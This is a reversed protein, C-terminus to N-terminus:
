VLSGGKQTRTIAGDEVIWNGSHRWGSLDKGNFLSQFGAQEEDSTLQNPEEARLSPALLMALVLFSITRMILGVFHLSARSDFDGLNYHIRM